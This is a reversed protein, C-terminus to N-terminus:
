SIHNEDGPQLDQIPVRYLRKETRFFEIPKLNRDEAIHHRTTQITLVLTEYSGETEMM